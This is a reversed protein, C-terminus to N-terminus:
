GRHRGTTTTEPARAAAANRQKHDIGDGSTRFTFATNRHAITTACIVSLTSTGTRSHTVICISTSAYSRTSDQQHATYTTSIALSRAHNLEGHSNLIASPNNLARVNFSPLQLPWRSEEAAFVPILALAIKLVVAGSLWAKPLGLVRTTGPLKYKTLHGPCSVLQARKLLRDYM